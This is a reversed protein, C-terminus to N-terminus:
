ESVAIHLYEDDYPEQRDEAVLNPTKEALANVTDDSIFHHTVDLRTLHGLQGSQALATAGRDGVNGLSLDLVDVRSLIVSKAVAEALKDGYDCNRLGLYRLDPFLEGDLLPELDELTTTGGYDDTGLWLELHTLPANTEMVERTLESRMGGTEFSLHSLTSHNIRGLRLGESGRAGFRELRPFAAWLPAMNGQNIWSIENEESVIDGFFLARLGSLKERETVIHEVAADPTVDVAEGGEMWVGFILAELTEIGRQRVLRSLLDSITHPEDYSCRLRIAVDAFGECSDEMGFDVVPKGFYASLHENIM